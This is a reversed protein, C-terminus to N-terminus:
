YRIVAEQITQPATAQDVITEEFREYDDPSLTDASERIDEPASNYGIGVLPLRSV